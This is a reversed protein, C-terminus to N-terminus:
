RACPAARGAARRDDGRQESTPRGPGVMRNPAAGVAVAAPGHGRGGGTCGPPRTVRTDTPTATTTCSAVMASQCTGASYSAATRSAASCASSCRVRSAVDSRSQHVTRERDPGPRPRPQAPQEDRETPQVASPAAMTASRAVDTGARRAAVARGGRQGVLLEGADDHPREAPDPGRRRPATRRRSRASRPELARVGVGGPRGAGAIRHAPVTITRRVRAAPEVVASPAARKARLASLLTNGSWQDNMSPSIAM